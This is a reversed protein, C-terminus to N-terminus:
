VDTSAQFLQKNLYFITGIFLITNLAITIELVLDLYNQKWFYNLKDKESSGGILNNKYSM